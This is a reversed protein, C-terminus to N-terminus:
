RHPLLREVVELLQRQKFPKTLYETCGIQKAAEVEDYLAFATVAVIPVTEASSTTSHLPVPVVKRKDGPLEPVIWHCFFNDNGSTWSLAGSGATNLSDFGNARTAWPDTTFLLGYVRTAM